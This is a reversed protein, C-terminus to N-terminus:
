LKFSIKRNPTSLGKLMKEKDSVSVEESKGTEMNTITVKTSEMPMILIKEVVMNKSEAVELLADYICDILLNYTGDYSDITQGAFNIAVMAARDRLNLLQPINLQSKTGEQTQPSKEEQEM